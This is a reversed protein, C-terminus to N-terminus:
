YKRGYTKGYMERYHADVTTPPYLPEAGPALCGPLCEVRHDPNGSYFFPVSYRDHGSRNIVRHLTSKYLDNSWRAFMDGINVVYTGAIPPADIWQQDQHNWVQLGGSDDQLLLTLGGFDTHAGAGRQDRAADVPQPPYHLLRLTTMPETCYSDFHHEDLQLSLALGRMLLESLAIMQALYKEMVPRFNQPQGPWQNPGQNFKGALVDPHDEALERGLYFGEKLDPPTGAELTQGGLPEYGRNAASFSKDLTRKEEDPRAFFERAQAFVAQQLETDIGHDRILFFGTDLCASRIADGVAQRAPADGQRLDTLSIIPLTKSSQIDPQNM